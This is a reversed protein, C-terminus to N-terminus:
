RKRAERKVEILRGRLENLGGEERRLKRKTKM